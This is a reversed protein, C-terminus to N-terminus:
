QCQSEEVSFIPYLVELDVESEAHNKHDAAEVRRQHPLRISVMGKNESIKLPADFLELGGDFVSEVMKWHEDRYHARITFKVALSRWESTFVKVTYRVDYVDEGDENNSQIRVGHALNIHAEAIGKPDPCPATHGAAHLVQAAFLVLFLGM